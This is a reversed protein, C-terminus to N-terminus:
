VCGDMCVCVDMCVRVCLPRLVSLTFLSVSADCFHQNGQCRQFTCWSWPQFFDFLCFFTIFDVRCVDAIFWMCNESFFFFFYAEVLTSLIQCNSDTVNLEWPPSFFLPCPPLPPPTLIGRSNSFYQSHSWSSHTCSCGGVLGRPNSGQYTGDCDTWNCCEVDIVWETLLAWSNLSCSCPYHVSVRPPSPCHENRMKGNTLVYTTKKSARTIYVTFTITHISLWCKTFYVGALRKFVLIQSGRLAHLVYNSLCPILFNLFNCFQELMSYSFPTVCVAFEYM